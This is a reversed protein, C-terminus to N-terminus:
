ECCSDDLVSLFGHPARLGLGVGYRSMARRADLVQGPLSARAIPASTDVRCPLMPYSTGCSTGRHRGSAFQYQPFSFARRHSCRREPPRCFPFAVPHRTSLLLGGCSGVFRRLPPGCIGAAVFFLKREPGRGPRRSALPTRLLPAPPLRAIQWRQRGSPQPCATRRLRPGALHPASPQSRRGGASFTVERRVSGWRLPYSVRWYPCRVIPVLAAFCAYIRWYSFRTSGQSTTALKGGTVSYRSGDSAPPPPRRRAGGLPACPSRMGSSTSALAAVARFAFALQVAARPHHCDTYWKDRSVLHRVAAFDRQWSLRVKWRRVASLAAGFADVWLADRLTVVSTNRVEGRRGGRM